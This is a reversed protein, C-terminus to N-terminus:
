QAKSHMCCVAPETSFANNTNLNRLIIPLHQQQNVERKEKKACLQVLLSQKKQSPLLQTEM